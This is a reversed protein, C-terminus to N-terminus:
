EINFAYVPYHDIAKFGLKTALRHSATNQHTTEWLPYMGQGLMYDILEMAALTAFGKGRHETEYTDVDIFYHNQCIFGNNRCVTLIRDEQVLQLATSVATKHEPSVYAFGHFSAPLIPVEALKVEVGDRSMKELILEKQEQATRFAEVDLTYVSEYHKAVRYSAGDEAFLEDFQAQDATYIEFWHAERQRCDPIVIDHIFNQVTRQHPTLSVEGELYMWRGTAWVLALNPHDVRDVFVRGPYHSHIVSLAPICREKHLFFDEVSIFQHKDLEIM